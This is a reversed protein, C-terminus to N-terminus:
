AQRRNVRRIIPPVNGEPACRAGAITIHSPIVHSSSFERAQECACHEARQRDPHHARDWGRSGFRDHEVPGRVHGALDAPEDVLGQVERLARERPLDVEPGSPQGTVDLQGRAVEVEVREAEDRDLGLDLHHGLPRDGSADVQGVQRHRGLELEVDDHGLERDQAEPNEVRQGLAPRDLRDAGAEGALEVGREAGRAQVAGVGDAVEGAAAPQLGEDVQERHAGVVGQGGVQRGLARGTRGGSGLEVRRGGLQGGVGAVGDPRQLDGQAAAGVHGAGRDQVAGGRGRALGVGHGAGDVDRGRGPRSGAAPRDDAEGGARLARSVLAGRRLRQREAGVVLQGRDVGQEVLPPRDRHGVVLAHTGGAVRGVDDLVGLGVGHEVDHPRRM